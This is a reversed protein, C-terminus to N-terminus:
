LPSRGLWTVGAGAPPLSGKQVLNFTLALSSTDPQEVALSVLSEPSLAFRGDPSQVVWTKVRGRVKLDALRWGLHQVFLAGYVRSAEDVRGKVGRTHGAELQQQAPEVWETSLAQLVEDAGSDEDLDLTELLDRVEAQWPEVRDVEWPALTSNPKRPPAAPAAPPPSSERPPPLAADRADSVIQGIPEFFVGRLNLSRFREVFPETFFPGFGGIWGEMTFVELAHADHDVINVWDCRSFIRAPPEGGLDITSVGTSSEADFDRSRRLTSVVVWDYTGVLAPLLEIGPPDYAWLRDASDRAILFKSGVLACGPLHLNKKTKHWAYRLRVWDEKLSVQHSPAYAVKEEQPSLGGCSVLAQFGEEPIVQYIKTISAM